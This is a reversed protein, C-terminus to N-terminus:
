HKIRSRISYFIVLLFGFPILTISSVIVGWKLFTFVPALHAFFNSPDPYRAMVISASINESLDLLVGLVPVLNLRKWLKGPLNLRKNLWSILTALFALYVLPWVLDFTFRARIYAQRGDAGYVEAIRYLDAAAYFFSTDPSGADGSYLAAKASQDPLVFIIFIIFIVQCILTVIGNSIHNFWDSLKNFM